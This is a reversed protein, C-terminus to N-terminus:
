FPLVLDSVACTKAFGTDPCFFPVSIRLEVTNGDGTLYLNCLNHKTYNYVLNNKLM